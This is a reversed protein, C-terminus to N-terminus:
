EQKTLSVITGSKELMARETPSINIGELWAKQELAELDIFRNTSMTAIYYALECAHSALWKPNAQGRTYRIFWHILEDIRKHQTVGDGGIEEPKLSNTLLAKIDEETLNFGAKNDM